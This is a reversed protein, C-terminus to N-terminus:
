PPSSLQGRDKECPTELVGQQWQGRPRSGSEMTSLTIPCHSASSSSAPHCKFGPRNSSPKGEPVPSSLGGLEQSQKGGADPAPVSSHDPHRSQALAQSASFEPVWVSPLSMQPGQLFSDFCNPCFIPHTPVPPLARSLTGPSSSHASVTHLLEPKSQLWGPYVGLAPLTGLAM